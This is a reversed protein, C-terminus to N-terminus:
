CLEKKLSQHGCSYIMTFLENLVLKIAQTQSQTENVYSSIVNLLSINLNNSFVNENSHCWWSTIYLDNVLQTPVVSSKMCKSNEQMSMVVDKREKLVIKLSEAKNCLYMDNEENIYLLISRQFRMLQQPLSYNM